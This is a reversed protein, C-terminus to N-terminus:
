GTDTQSEKVTLRHRLTQRNLIKGLNYLVCAQEYRIDNHTVAKGLFVDTRCLLFSPLSLSLALFLSLPLSPPSFSLSLTHKIVTHGTDAHSPM